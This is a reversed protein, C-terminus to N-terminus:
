PLPAFGMSVYFNEGTKVMRTADYGEAVLRQTLDYGLPAGDRPAVIDYISGWEQAWMNGLLDARIPGTRPQVAAGYKESLRMRTSCHRKSYFPRMAAWLRDTLYAIADPEMDYWSRWLAGTDKHGLERSGENALGVLEAYLPRMPPSVQRWGEWVAKIE